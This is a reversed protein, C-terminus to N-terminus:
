LLFSVICKCRILECLRDFLECLTKLKVGQVVLVVTRDEEVSGGGLDFEALKLKGKGIEGVSDVEVFVVHLRDQLTCLQVQLQLLILLRHTVQLPHLRDVWLRRPQPLLQLLRLQLQLLRLALIVILDKLHRLLGGLLVDLLGILPLRELPVGIFM